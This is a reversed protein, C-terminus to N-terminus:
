GATMSFLIRECASLWGAGHADGMAHCPLSTATDASAGTATVM